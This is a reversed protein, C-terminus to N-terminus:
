LRGFTTNPLPLRTTSGATNGGWLRRHSSSPNQGPGRELIGSASRLERFRGEPESILQALIEETASAWCAGRGTRAASRLGLGGLRMPLTTIDRATAIQEQSGPHAGLLALM